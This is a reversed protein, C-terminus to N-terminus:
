RAAAAIPIKLIVADRMEASTIPTKENQFKGGQSAANVYLYGDVAVALTPEDFAPNNMELIKAGTVRTGDPSLDVRTVRNPQVGNQVLYLSGGALVLGDAGNVAANPPVNLRTIAKTAVDIRHLGSYDSVYITKGDPTPAIGQTGRFLDTELFLEIAKGGPALTFIRGNFGDNTWVRGDPGVAVDDFAAPRALEPAKLERRLKGTDADFEFLASQLPEDKVHGEMHPMAESAVWLSRSRPDVHIGAASRLGGERAPVFISAKGSPDIRWIERKRISSVFFSKTNPDYAVGEPVLGKEPITFAVAAGSDVRETRLAKMKAAADRFGASQKISGFDDDAEIDSATRLAVLESLTKEAAATRGNVAQGCALNYLIFVDGPRRAALEEYIALFRAKDGKQYAALAEKQLDAVSPQPSAPPAALLAASLIFASIM